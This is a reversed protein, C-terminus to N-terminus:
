KSEGHFGDIVKEDNIIVTYTQSKVSIYLGNWCGVPKSAVKFPGRFGHIAGTLHVSEKNPL